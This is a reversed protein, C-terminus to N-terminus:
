CRASLLLHRPGAACPRTWSMDRLAPALARIPWRRDASFIGITTKPTRMKSRPRPEAQPCFIPRCRRISRRFGAPTSTITFPNGRFTSPTGTNQYGVYAGTPDSFQYYINGNVGTMVIAVGGAQPYQTPLAMGTVPVTTTFPTAEAAPAYFTLLNLTIAALVITKRWLKSVLKSVRIGGHRTFDQAETRVHAKRDHAAISRSKRVLM